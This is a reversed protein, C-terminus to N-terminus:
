SITIYLLLETTGVDVMSDYRRCESTRTIKNEVMSDCRRHQIYILECPLSYIIKFHQVRVEYLHCYPLFMSGFLVRVGHPSMIIIKILFCSHCVSVSLEINMRNKRYFSPQIDQRIFESIIQKTIDWTNQSIQILIRKSNISIFIMNM